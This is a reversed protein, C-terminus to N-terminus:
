KKPTIEITVSDSEKITTERLVFGNQKIKLKLM